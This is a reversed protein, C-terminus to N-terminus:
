GVQELVEAFSVDALCGFRDDRLLKARVTAPSSLGCLFRALQRPQRLAPHNEKKLQQVVEVDALTLNRRHTAPLSDAMKQGRCPGCTGCPSDKEGFHEQLQQTLCRGSECWTIVQQLKTIQVGELTHFRDELHRLIASLSEASPGRRYLRQFGRRRLQQGSQIALNNLKERAEDESIGLDSAVQAFDYRLWARNYEGMALLQGIERKEPESHGALVKDIEVKTRGSRPWHLECGAWHIGESQLVGDAELYSLATEIVTMRMDRSQSLDYLSVPITADSDRLLLHELLSRLSSSSPTDGYTFNELVTLDDACALLHCDAPLGDRGARGSEQVYNELSKPLNYHIVRRVDPKDVGMGFAITAVVVPLSGDMFADQVEARDESRMGAHYARATVGARQLVAAVSEATERLSVYVISSDHEDALLSVLAANRTSADSPTVHYHLNPRAFPTRLWNKPSIDFREAIQEAVDPTATATMALVCRAGLHEAFEPLRLYDPRFNHGWESVCHAEDIAFLDIPYRSLRRLFAEGALREPSLYLLKLTGNELSQYVRNVTEDSLTSDLREAAIGRVQLAAVQDKMLAVLPSVVVTLGDLLLAPLQYCLSKGAGTPFLALASRGALVHHIVEEQGPRFYDHGFHQRLASSLEM